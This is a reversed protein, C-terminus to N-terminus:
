WRKLDPVFRLAAFAMLRYMVTLGCLWGLCSWKHDVSFGYNELITEGSLDGGGFRFSQGEFQVIGSYEAAYKLPSICNLIHLPLPLKGAANFWGCMVNILSLNISVISVAFGAHKIASCYMLGASEGYTLVLFILLTSELFVTVDSSLGVAFNLLTSALFASIVSCPLEICMYSALFASSSYTCDHRDRLYVNREAPFNAICTLMGVFIFPNWEYMLGVRNYADGVAHKRYFLTLIVSFALPQM